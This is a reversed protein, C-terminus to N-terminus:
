YDGDVPPPDCLNVKVLTDGGQFRISVLPRRSIKAIESVKAL